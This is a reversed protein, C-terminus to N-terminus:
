KKKDGDKNGRGSTRIVELKPLLKKDRWSMLQAVGKKTVATDRLELFELKELSKLEGLVKNDVKDGKLVVITIRGTNPDREAVEGDLSLIKDHANKEDAPM